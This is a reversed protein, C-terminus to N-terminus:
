DTVSGIVSVLNYNTNKRKDEQGNTNTHIAFYIKLLCSIFATARPGEVIQIPINPCYCQLLM